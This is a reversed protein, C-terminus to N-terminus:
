RKWMERHLRQKCMRRSLTPMDEIDWMVSVYADACGRAAPAVRKIMPVILLAFYIRYIATM